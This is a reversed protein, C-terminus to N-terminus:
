YSCTNGFVLPKALSSRHTVLVQDSTKAEANKGDGFSPIAAKWVEKGTNKDLAVIGAESSGPTCLVWDGDILPSESFGWGSMMQGKWDGFERALTAQWKRM